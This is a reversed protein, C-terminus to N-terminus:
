VNRNKGYFIRSSELNKRYQCSLSLLKDPHLCTKADSCKEFRSCCGFVANSAKYTDIAISVFTPILCFVDNTQDLSISSIDNKKKVIEYGDFLKDYMSKYEVVTRSEKPIIKVASLNDFRISIYGKNQKAFIHKRFIDYKEEKALEEKIEDNLNNAGLALFSDDFLLQEM